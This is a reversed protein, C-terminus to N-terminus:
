PIIGLMKIAPYTVKKEKREEKSEKENKTKRKEKDLFLTQKLQFPPKYYTLSTCVSLIYTDRHIYGYPTRLIPNPYICM